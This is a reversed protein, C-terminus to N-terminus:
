VRKRIIHTGSNDHSSSRFFFIKCQPYLRSVSACIDTRKQSEVYVSCWVCTINNNNHSSITHTNRKKTERLVDRTVYLKQVCLDGVGVGDIIFSLVNDTTHSHSHAAGVFFIIKRTVSVIRVRYLSLLIISLRKGDRCYM